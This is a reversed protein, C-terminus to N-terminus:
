AALRPLNALLNRVSSDLILTRSGLKLAELKGEKILKYITTRGIGYTAVVSPVTHAQPQITPQATTQM